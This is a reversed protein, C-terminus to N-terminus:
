QSAIHSHLPFGFRLRRRRGIVSSTSDDSLCTTFYETNDNFV